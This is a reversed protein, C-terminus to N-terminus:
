KGEEIINNIKKVVEIEKLLSLNIKWFGRGSASEKNNDLVLSLINHYSYISLDIECKKIDYIKSLPIFFYDLRSQLIGKSTLKRWTYRKKFPNLLRWIDCLNPEEIISKVKKAYKTNTEAKGYKDLTPSLHLNLDGGM